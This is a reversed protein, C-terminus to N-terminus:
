EMDMAEEEETEKEHSPEKMNQEEVENTDDIPYHKEVDNTNNVIDSICNEQQHEKTTEDFTDIFSQVGKKLQHRHGWSMIGLEKFMDMFETDNLGQLIELDINEKKLLEEYQMLNTSKLVDVLNNSKNSVNSNTVDVVTDKIGQERMRSVHRKM